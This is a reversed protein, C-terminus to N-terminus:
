PRPPPPNRTPRSRSRDAGDRRNSVHERRLADNRLLDTAYILNEIAKSPWLGGFACRILHPVARLSLEACCHKALQSQNLQM